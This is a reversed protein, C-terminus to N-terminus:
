RRALERPVCLVPRASFRGLCVWFLPVRTIPRAETHCVALACLLDLDAHRRILHLSETVNRLLEFENRMNRPPRAIPTSQSM